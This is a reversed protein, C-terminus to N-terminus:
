LKYKKYSYYINEYFEINNQVTNPVYIKKKNM